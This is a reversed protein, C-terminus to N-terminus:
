LVTSFMDKPVYQEPVPTKNKGSIQIHSTGIAM